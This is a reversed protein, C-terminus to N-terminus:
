GFIDPLIMNESLNPSSPTTAAVNSQSALTIPTVTFTESDTKSGETAIVPVPGISSAPVTFNAFFFGNTTTTVPAPTTPINSGNFTITVISSPDFGAGSIGVPTGVPGSTTNLFIIPQVLSTVTFTKSASNSGQTAKVTQDGISSSLPVTFTATFVGNSTPNVTTVSSGGFTIGVTSIPDFGNGTVTVLTGVPGSTPNISITPNSSSSSTSFNWECNDDVGESNACDLHNGDEDKISSLLSAIYNTKPSLRDNNDITFTISKGSVSVSAINPDNCIATCATTPSCHM